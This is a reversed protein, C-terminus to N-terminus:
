HGENSTIFRKASEERGEQAIVLQFDGMRRLMNRQLSPKSKPQAKRSTKQPGNAKKDKAKRKAANKNEEEEENEDHKQKNKAVAKRKVDENELSRSHADSITRMM